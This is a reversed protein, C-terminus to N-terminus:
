FSCGGALVLPAEGDEDNDDTGNDDDDDDDDDIDDTDDDIDGDVDDDDIDDGAAATNLPQQAAVNQSASTTSVVYAVSAM